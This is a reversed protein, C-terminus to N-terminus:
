IFQETTKKQKDSSTKLGCRPCGHGMLHCHPTQEFDGHSLCTITVRKSGNIYSVGDYRYMPTEDKNKHVNRAEKVFQETTKKNTM